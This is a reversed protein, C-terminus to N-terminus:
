FNPNYRFQEYDYVKASYGDGLTPINLTDSDYVENDNTTKFPIKLRNRSEDMVYYEWKDSRGPYKHRGFLPYRTEGSFVYGVMQFNDNGQSYEREPPSLPNYMKNFGRSVSDCQSSKQKAYALDSQCKQDKLQSSYLQEQLSQVKAQLENATLHSVLDVSTM